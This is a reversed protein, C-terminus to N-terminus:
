IVLMLARRKRSGKELLVHAQRRVCSMLANMTCTTNMPMAKAFLSIRFNNSLFYEDYCCAMRISFALIKKPTCLIMRM